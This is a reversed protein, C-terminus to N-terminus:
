EHANGKALGSDRTYILLRTDGYKRDRLLVWGPREVVAEGASQEFVLLGRGALISSEEVARLTNELWAKKGDRDYPPDALILSFPEVGGGKRLFQLADGLRCQADGGEGTCLCAVNQKLVEFARRDSEVWCVSAAGRSWAELGLAGSGAFLDLVRTGPVFDALSSFLAARVKDQTPRVGTRPVKLERRCLIGGTIRM